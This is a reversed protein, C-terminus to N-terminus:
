VAVTKGSDADAGGAQGALGAQGGGGALGTERLFRTSREHSETLFRDTHRFDTIAVGATDAGPVVIVRQGARALGAPDPLRAYRSVAFSRVLVDLASMRAAPEDDPGVIEGLVFVTSADLDVARQVPAPELVGGDVHRHGDLLAPPLLGPLCATAYLIEGAPGDRWWRAVANDIDTTVVEVPIALDGLDEIPCNRAILDRLAHPSWLHDRHSLLRAVVGTRRTGFVKDRSLGRWLTEMRGVQAVTPDLAFFAANLAGVSCGVLVDPRIGAELLSRLIGVQAAGASGGGPLVFAVEPSSRLRSSLSM